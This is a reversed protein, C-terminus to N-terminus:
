KGFVKKAKKIGGALREVEDETNYLYYSARTTANVGLAKTLVQACHHGSRVAIAEFDLISGLDHPHVGDLTLSVIGVRNKAHGYVTVEPIESLLDLTKKVLKEEHKRIEQLGVANLYDIAAGLGIADAANPTGAEFKQPLEAWKSEHKEVSSIMSGGYLFPPMKELLEQKGWLIGSGMPGLMKHGSFAYFDAGSSHVDPPSHPAGAAGDVAVIEVGAKRAKKTWAQVDNITGLVNSAHPLAFVRTGSPFEYGDNLEGGGERKIPVFELRAHKRKALQQWPVINSHHDMETVVIVDNKVVNAEGWAYAVANIGETTNRTFIVEERKARIYEATKDRAKEYLETAEVGLSHVNRHVNAYNNSYFDTLARIVSLPKQTSAANDLYALPHKNFVRKLAPFDKCIEPVNM